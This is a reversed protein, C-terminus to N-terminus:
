FSANGILWLWDLCVGSFIGGLLFLVLLNGMANQEPGKYGKPAVTMVCVTLHGNTFGLLSTLMIMWGQDGYKATFYFAPVFLFRALIAIMLGKRSDLKVCKILPTYRGILDLVNYMAILVVAYWDGLKHEGTNEFLFGPFISLTLAYILYLDLFYDWNQYLLQKLTFRDEVKANEEIQKIGAAALDSTVTKSGEKAAKTRFYKVIPLKPFYFAYLFVCALELATSIALFLLAGKRLGDHSKDFVAKTVLRLCSTLAGSAALGVFFSQIFEPLMFALDGCMGGQVHADAVGFAAVLICIGVYPGVGGHGSTALDLLLCGFTSVFFLIYGAINRWRTDIRSENYALYALTGVAFPQYVLTLVRSPHYKPFVKYYYDGVTLMTNWSLLSGMGLFWCVLVAIRKGPLRDPTVVEAVGM